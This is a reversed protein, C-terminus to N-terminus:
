RLTVIKGGKKISEHVASILRITHLGFALQSHDHSKAQIADVFARLESELPPLTETTPFSITPQQATVNQGSIAPGFGEYLSLKQSANDDYVLASKKGIVTLKTRKEPSICSITCVLAANAFDFRAVGIDYLGPRKPRTSAIGWAQVSKVPTPLISLAMSLPHPLWDWLVSADKRFPGNNFGEFSAHRIAGIDKVLERAKKFAPNHLHIHGVHVLTRSKKAADLLRVADAVSDTVPKEIFTPIGSRIYPLAIDFHTSIPTAVIVGDLSEPIPDKSGVVILSVDKFNELTRIINKGWRGKGFLALRTM